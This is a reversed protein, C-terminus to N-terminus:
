IKHREIKKSDEFKSMMDKYHSTEIAKKIEQKRFKHKNLDPMGIYRCIEKVERGLGPWGRDEAADHVTKALSGEELSQIRIM